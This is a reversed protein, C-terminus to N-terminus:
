AISVISNPEAYEVNPNSNLIAVAEEVDFNEVEVLQLALNQTTEVVEGDVSELVSVMEVPSMDPDVKIIVQNPEIEDAFPEIAPSDAISEVQLLEM